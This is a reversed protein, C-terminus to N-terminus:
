QPLNRRTCFNDITAPLRIPILGFTSPVLCPNLTIEASPPKHSLRGGNVMRGRQLLSWLSYGATRFLSIGASYLEVICCISFQKTSFIRMWELARNLADSSLGPFPQAGTRRLRLSPPLLRLGPVRGFLSTKKTRRGRYLRIVFFPVAKLSPPLM